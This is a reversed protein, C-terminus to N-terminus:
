RLGCLCARPWQSVGSRGEQSLSLPLSLVPAESLVSLSFFQQSHTVSKFMAEKAQRCVQSPGRHKPRVGLKKPECGAWLQKKKNRESDAMSAIATHPCGKTSLWPPTQSLTSSRRFPLSHSRILFFTPVCKCQLHHPLPSGVREGPSPIMLLWAQLLSLPTRRSRQRPTLMLASAPLKKAWYPNGNQADGQPPEPLALLSTSAPLSGSTM